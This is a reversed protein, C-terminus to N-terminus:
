LHAKLETVVQDYASKMEGLLADLDSEDGLRAKEEMQNALRFVEAAGISGSGGKLQHANMYVAELDGKPLAKSINEILKPSNEFYTNIFDGLSDELLERMEDFVESDIVPENM